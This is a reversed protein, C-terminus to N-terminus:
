PIPPNNWRQVTVIMHAEGKQVRGGDEVTAIVKLNGANNTSMTRAPNPGADGPMFIGADARMTGAFNVDRDEVARENFPAVSWRAPVYGVRFAKGNADQSWAEADFRGEVKPAAGGNGGVRAVSYAPLVKVDTVQRYIALGAGQVKGIRIPRVGTAAEDGIRVKVRVQEPSRQMVRVVQIGPGFDPTGNLQTGVVTLEAEAGAKVFEPQVALVRGSAAVSAQVAHFDLGREDHVADFMRGRLEGDKATLVQRMTVGDISISGRWEYGTYVIATGSGNFPRGDAYQGNVSVKFNDGGASAVDMVGRIDGSGPMHGSFSWRGRLAAAEPKQKRWDKWDSREYPYQKELMPVVEKLAVQLWDRDRGMASYEVSPWQGLHFNVLHEWEKIPRRQLLPRAASHCRACMENFLKSDVAEVTNMRREIGYRASEAEAPALGQKDALYKVVIRRDEDSISLGHMTQMRAITMLWGEPTKRQHSIRSWSDKGEAAHCAACTQSIVAQADRAHASSGITMLFGAAGLSCLIM